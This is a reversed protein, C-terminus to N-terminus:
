TTKKDNVMQLKKNDNVMLIEVIICSEDNEVLYMYMYADNLIM